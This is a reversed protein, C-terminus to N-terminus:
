ARLIEATTSTKKEHDVLAAVIGDGFYSGLIKAGTNDFSYYLNNLGVYELKSDPKVKDLTQRFYIKKDLQSRSVIATLIEFAMNDNGINSGAYRKSEKFVDSLDNYNLYWPINGNLFLEEFLNYIFSDSVILDNNPMFISNEDFTLLKYKVNDIEIDSINNPVLTHMIPTNTVSYNNQMDIVAYIGIVRVIDGIFCLEKNIFRTPFIVMLDDSTITMNKSLKFKSKIIEPRRKLREISITTM